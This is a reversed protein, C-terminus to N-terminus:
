KEMVQALYLDKDTSGTLIVELTRREKGIESYKFGKGAEVGM